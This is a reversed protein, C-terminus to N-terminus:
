LATTVSVDHHCLISILGISYFLPGICLNLYGYPRINSLSTLVVCQCFFADVKVVLAPLVPYRVYSFSMLDKTSVQCVFYLLLSGFDKFTLCLVRFSNSYFFLLCVLLSAFLCFGKWARLKFSSKRFLDRPEWSFALFGIVM